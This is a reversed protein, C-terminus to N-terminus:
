YKLLGIHDIVVGDKVELDGELLAKVAVGHGVPLFSCSVLDKMNNIKLFDNLTLTPTIKNTKCKNVYSEYVKNKASESYINFADFDVIAVKKGSDVLSKIWKFSETNYILKIYEPFYVKKRAEVYNLAEWDNGNYHAFYLTDKHEYGISKCTHRMLDKTCETKSYLENRWKFFEENPKGNNDHCPYVKGCQWFIEFINAVVGDSSTVPGIFFPSLDKAFNPHDKIFEKIKKQTVIKGDIKFKYGAKAMSVIHEEPPICEIYNTSMMTRGNLITEFKM